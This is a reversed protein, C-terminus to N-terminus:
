FKNYATIVMGNEESILLAKNIAKDLAQVIEARRRKSITLESAGGAMPSQEGFFQLLLLQLDTIGRQQQRITAHKTVM